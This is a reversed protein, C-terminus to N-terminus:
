SHTGEEPSSISTRSKALRERWDPRLLTYITFICRAIIIALFIVFVSYAIDFRVGLAASHEIKMFTVYDYAGPLIWLFIGGIGVALLLLFIRQGAPPLADLIINFTVHQHDRLLFACGLFVIWIYMLVSIEMTWSLPSNFIFRSVIQLVFAGFLVAFLGASIHGIIKQVKLIFIDMIHGQKLNYAFFLELM